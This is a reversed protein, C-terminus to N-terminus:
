NEFMQELITRLVDREETYCQIEAPWRKNILADKRRPDMTDWEPCHKSPNAIKDKHVAIQKELSKIGKQIEKASRKEYLEIL